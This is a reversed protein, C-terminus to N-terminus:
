KNEGEEVFKGDKLMYFTDEKIEEGDVLKCQVDVREWIYNIEKWEALVARNEM